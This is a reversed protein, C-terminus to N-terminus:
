SAKEAPKEALKCNTWVDLKKLKEPDAGAAALYELVKKGGEEGLEGAKRMIEATLAPVDVPAGIAAEFDKWSLPLREPISYRSKADFAACRTTYIWRAGTSVGRVRKTKSDKSTVTEYNAFLVAKPWEKLLGAAKNNLKMEYRDWGESEPDKFPRIWSHALLIINMGKSARLRELDALLIRWEDIAATYGKGYGGGVAEINISNSTKCVHQFILGEIWDVTDVVLTKYDHQDVTLVHIAERVDAWSEPVPFRAVNLEGSGNESDIFIPMPADAAFTSKGAGEPSYLLVTIPEKLRGRVVSGLTMKSPKATTQPKTQAIM